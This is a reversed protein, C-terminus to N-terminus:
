KKRGKFGSKWQSSDPEYVTIVVLEDEKTNEAMVVHLPRNGRRGLMLRSPFPMEDSYDEVVEGSQLVQRANEESICREFMRQIAHIRYIIPQSTM